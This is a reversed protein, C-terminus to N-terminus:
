IFIFLDIKSNGYYVIIADFSKLYLYVYISRMLYLFGFSFNIM